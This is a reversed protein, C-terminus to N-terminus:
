AVSEGPGRWSVMDTLVIDDDVVALGVAISFPPPPPRPLPPRSGPPLTPTPPPGGPPLPLPLPLPVEESATAAVTCIAALVRTLLVMLRFCPLVVLPATTSLAAAQPM